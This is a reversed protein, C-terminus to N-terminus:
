RRVVLPLYLGVRSEETETPTPELTRTPTPTRSPTPTATSTATPSATSTRTATSTSTPTMTPTPTGTATRTVTPTPTREAWRVLLYPRNQAVDESSRFDRMYALSTTEPGRLELGLNSSSLCGRGLWWGNVASSVVWRYWGAQIGVPETVIAASGVGFWWSLPPCSWSQGIRRAQIGVEPGGAGNLYVYLEASYLLANAPVSSLDFALYSRNYRWHLGDYSAGVYLNTSTCYSALQDYSDIYSDVCPTLTIVGVASLGVARAASPSDPVDPPPELPSAVATPRLWLATLAFLLAALLLLPSGLRILIRRIM